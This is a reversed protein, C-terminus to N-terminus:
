MRGPQKSGYMLLGTITSFDLKMIPSTIPRSSGVMNMVPATMIMSRSPYLRLWRFWLDSGMILFYMRYVWTLALVSLARLTHDLQENSNMNLFRHRQTRLVHVKNSHRSRETGHVVDDDSKGSLLDFFPYNTLFWFPLQVQDSDRTGNATWLERGPDWCGTCLCEGFSEEWHYRRLHDTVKLAQLYCGIAVKGENVKILCLFSFFFLSSFAGSINFCNAKNPRQCETFLPAPM